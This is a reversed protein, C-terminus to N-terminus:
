FLKVCKVVGNHQKEFHIKTSNKKTNKGDFRLLTEIPRVCLLKISFIKISGLITSRYHDVFYTKGLKFQCQM